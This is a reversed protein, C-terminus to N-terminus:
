DFFLGGILGGGGFLLLGRRFPDLGMSFALLYMLVFPHVTAALIILFVAHWSRRQIVYHIGVLGIAMALAQKVGAFTFFFHGSAVFLYVTLWFRESYRAFFGVYLSVTVASIILLAAQPDPWVRLITSVLLWFGPNDALDWSIAAGANPGSIIESFSALYRHTDNFSTRFGSVVSFFLILLIVALRSPGRRSNGRVAWDLAGLAIPVGLIIWLM